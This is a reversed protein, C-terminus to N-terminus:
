KTTNLLGKLLEGLFELSEEPFSDIINHLRLRRQEETSLAPTESETPNILEIPDMSLAQALKVFKDTRLNEILGSEWKAVTGKSVGCLRAIDEQTMHLEIRRQKIRQNLDM